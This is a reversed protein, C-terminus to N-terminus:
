WTAARRQPGARDACRRAGHLAGLGLVARHGLAHQAGAVPHPRPGPRPRHHAGPGAPRRVGPRPPAGARGLHPVDVRHVLDRGAGRDGRARPRDLAHQRVLQRRALRRQPRRPAARHARRVLPAHLELRPLDPRHRAQARHELDGRHQPHRHLRHEPRAAPRGPRPQRLRDAEARRVVRLAGPGVRLRPRAPLRRRRPGAGAARGVRGRGPRPAGRPDRHARGAPRGRHHGARRHPARRLGPPRLAARDARRGRRRLAGGGQEVRRPAARHHAAPVVGARRGRRLHERRRRLPAPRRGARHAARGHGPHRGPHGGCGPDGGEHRRQPGCRAAAPDPADPRLRRVHEAGRRPGGLAVRPLVGRAAGEGARWQGRRRPHVGAAAGVPGGHVADLRGGGGPARDRGRARRGGVVRGVRGGRGEM